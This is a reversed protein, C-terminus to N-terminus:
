SRANLKIDYFQECESFHELTTHKYEHIECTINYKMQSIGDHFDVDDRFDVSSPFDVTMFDYDMNEHLRACEFLCAM